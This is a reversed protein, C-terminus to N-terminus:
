VMNGGNESVKRVTQGCNTRFSTKLALKRVNKTNEQQKLVFFRSTERECFAFRDKIAARGACDVIEM